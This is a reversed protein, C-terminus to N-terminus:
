IQDNRVKITSGLEKPLSSLATGAFLSFILDSSFLQLIFLIFIYMLLVQTEKRKYTFLLPLFAIEILQLLQPFSSKENPTTAQYWFEARFQFASLQSVGFTKQAAWCSRSWFVISYNKM